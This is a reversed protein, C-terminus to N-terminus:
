KRSIPPPRAQPPPRVTQRILQPNAVTSTYNYNQVPIQQIPQQTPTSFANYTKKAAYLLGLVPLTNKAVEFIKNQTKDKSTLEQIKKQIFLEEKEVDVNKKKKPKFSFDCEKQEKEKDVIFEQSLGGSASSILYDSNIFDESDSPKLGFKSVLVQNDSVLNNKNEFLINEVLLEGQVTIFDQIDTNYDLSEDYKSGESEDFMKKGLLFKYPQNPPIQNLVVFNSDNFNICKHNAFFIVFNDIIDNYMKEKEKGNKASLDEVGFIPNLIIDSLFVQKEENMCIDLAYLNYQFESKFFDTEKNKPKIENEVRYVKNTISLYNSIILSTNQVLKYIEKMVPNLGNVFPGESGLELVQFFNEAQINDIGFNVFISPYLFSFYKSGIRSILLYARIEFVSGQVIYPKKVSKELIFQTDGSAKKYKTQVIKQIQELSKVPYNYLEKKGDANRFYYNGDDLFRNNAELVENMEKKNFTLFPMVFEPHMEKLMKKVIIKLNKSHPFGYAIKPQYMYHSITADYASGFEWKEHELKKTLFKRLDRHNVLNLNFKFM